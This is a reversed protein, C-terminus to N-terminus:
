RHARLLTDVYFHETLLTFLHTGNVDALKLRYEIWFCVTEEGHGSLLGDRDYSLPTQFNSINLLVGENANNGLGDILQVHFANRGICSIVHVSSTEHAGDELACM